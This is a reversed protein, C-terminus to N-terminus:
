NDYKVITNVERHIRKWNEEILGALRPREIRV